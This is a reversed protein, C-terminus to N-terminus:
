KMPLQIYGMESGIKYNPLMMRPLELTSIRHPITDKIPSGPQKEFVLKSLWSRFSLTYNKICVSEQLPPLPNSVLTQAPSRPRNM